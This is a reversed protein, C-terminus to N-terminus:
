AAEAGMSIAGGSGTPELGRAEAREANRQEVAVEVALSREKSEHDLKKGALMAQLDVLQINRQEALEVMARDYNLRAIREASADSEKRSDAAIQAAQVRAQAAIVDPTQQDAASAEIQDMLRNFDTESTFVEDPPINLSQLAMRAAHYGRSRLAKSLVPHVTWAQALLMLNQAQLEKVLLVSTGRAEVSMDGKIEEKPSFQMNWDYIRRISPTTLDDDWNKVIRRFVVNASNMLMAMGGMTQTVHSGQDGQAILPMQSEEDAFQKAQEIIAALAQQNNPINFVSFPSQNSGLEVGTQLWIKNPYIKWDGDEPEILKNNIVVQPGVSLAGNDLEMRWAGNMARQSDYIIRPIGIAGMVSAEGQQLSFASYLSEGSDLPYEESLKLLEGNCFHMIVRHEELPDADTLLKDAEEIRGLSRMLDAVEQVELPGHYEWMVFRGQLAQGENTIARLQNLHNFNQDAGIGAGGDILRGVAAKDFGLKRAMKRLETKSPLHREFSFEVDEMTLGSNDPFFHWPDVRRFEPRKSGATDLVYTGSAEDRYWSRAIRNGTMPGKLIGIGLRCADRIVDRCRVAYRSEVLQDRIEREMADCRKRAEDMEAEAREHKAGAANGIDVIAQVQEPPAGEAAAQNAQKAAKEAASIAAQATETLEPVPTPKIGWNWDDVPFLMDSLRAEYAETRSRTFKIFARSKENDPDNLAQETREDYRGHFARLDEIWRVEIPARATIQEQVLIELRGIIASAAGRFAEIQEPTPPEAMPAGAQAIATSSTMASQM